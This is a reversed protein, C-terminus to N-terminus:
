AVVQAELIGFLSAIGANAPTPHTNTGNFISKSFFFFFCRSTAVAIVEQGKCGDKSAWKSSRSANFTRSRPWAISFICSDTALEGLGDDKACWHGSIEFTPNSGM